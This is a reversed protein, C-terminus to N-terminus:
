QISFIIRKNDYFFLPSVLFVGSSLDKLEKISSNCSFQFIKVSSHEQQRRELVKMFLTGVGITTAGYVM